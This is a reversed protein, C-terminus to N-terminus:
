STSAVPHFSCYCVLEIGTMQEQELLRGHARKGEKGESKERKKKEKGKERVEGSKGTTFL